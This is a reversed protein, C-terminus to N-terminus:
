RLILLSPDIRDDSVVRLTGTGSFLDDRVFRESVGSDSSGYTGRPLPQWDPTKPWDRWFAKKCQAAVGDPLEVRGSEGDAGDFRLFCKKVADARPVVLKAGCCVRVPLNRALACGDAATGLRLVGANVVLEDAINTQSGGLVLAGSWSSVFGGPATVPAWIQNPKELNSSKAFVYGPRDADGLVLAGNDAGGDPQGIATDDGQLVLGGSTIALTRGAGLLKDKGGDNLYLSNVTVDREIGIDRNWVYANSFQSPAGDLATDNFVPHVLLGNKDFSVFLTERWNSDREWWSDHASAPAVMWPIIPYVDRELCDGDEGAGVLFAGHNKVITTTNTSDAAGAQLRSPDYVVFTGKDEHELGDWEVCNIPRGSANGSNRVVVRSFGPGVVLKEFLRTDRVGVGWGENASAYSTYFGGRMTMTRRPTWPICNGNEDKHVEAEGYGHEWGTRFWGRARGTDGSPIGLQPWCWGAVTVSVNTGVGAKWFIPGARNFGEIQGHSTDLLTGRFSRSAWSFTIGGMGKKWFTGEGTLNPPGITGGMNLGYGPLGDVSWFKGEPIHVTCAEYTVFGRHAAVNTPNSCSDTEVSSACELLIAYGGFRLTNNQESWTNPTVKVFAPEGDTREFTVTKTENANKHRELRCEATVDRFQGFLIGGVSLDTMHRIYTNGETAYFPIVAIDNPNCPWQSDTADGIKDWAAAATWIRDGTSVTEDYVYVDGGEIPEPLVLVAVTDMLNDGNWVEIGAVAPELATVVFGDMSLFRENLVRYRWGSPLSPLVVTDDAHVRIATAASCHASWDSVIVNSGGLAFSLNVTTVYTRGLYLATVTAVAVHTTNPKGSYATEFTRTSTQGTFTAVTAGDVSITLAYSTGPEVALTSVSLRQSGDGAPTSGISSLRVPAPETVAEFTASVGEVGWTNVARVRYFYNSGPVLGATTLVQTFPLAAVAVGASSVADSFDGLLSCDLYVTADTSGAGFSALNATASVSGFGVGAPVLGVAAPEPALTRFSLLASLGTKGNDDVATAKAYYLTNTLLPALPVSFTGNSTANEAITGSFVPDSLDASASVVLSVTASTAGDGLSVLGATLTANTYGVPEAALSITPEAGGEPVLVRLVVTGDGGRGGTTSYPTNAYGAGGGGGGGLGDAGNAATSRRRGGSSSVGTGGGGVGAVGGEAREYSSAGGGGGYVVPLGTISNTVGPGGAGAVSSTGDAGPGGAGGGGGGCGDSETDAKGGDHGLGATGLGPQVSRGAAGGGSAGDLGYAEAPLDGVGGTGWNFNGGGGGGPATHLTGGTVTGFTTAGGCTSATTAGEHLLQDGWLKDLYWSRHIDPVGGAGVTFVYSQAGLEVGTAALVGGGGGGGGRTMGGAGGGGALLLSSGPSAKHPTFAVTGHRSFVYARYPPFADVVRDPARSFSGWDDVYPEESWRDLLVPGAATGEPFLDGPATEDYLRIEDFCLTADDGDNDLSFQLLSMGALDWSRTQNLKQRDFWLTQKNNASSVVLQHWAGVASVTEGVGNTLATFGNGAGIQNGDKLFLSGDAGNAPSFQFFCHRDAAAPAYFWLAITWNKQLGPNPVALTSGPPVSVVGSRGDLEAVASLASISASLNVPANPIPITGEKAPSGVVAEFPNSRDFAYLAALATRTAHTESLQVYTVLGWDNVLRFRLAYDTNPELNEVAFTMAQGPVANTEVSSITTAFGDASAELRITASAAGTGFDTVAGTASLRAPGGSLFEGTGSPAGPARTTFAIEASAGAVGFSNTASLRAYYTANTALPVLPVAVSAPASEVRPLPLVFLPDSFDANASVVLLPDVWSADNAMAADMGLSGVNASLTANTYLVAALPASLGIQPEPTAEYPTAPGATLFTPDSQSAYAAAIWDASKIGASLRYEDVLGQFGQGAGWQNRAMWMEGSQGQNGLSSATQTNVCVGNVYFKLGSSGPVFTMAWHFWTNASLGANIDPHDKIGPTTVQVKTGSTRVSMFGNKGFLAHNGSTNALNAWGGVTFGSFLDANPLNQGCSVYASTNPYSLGTGVAGAALAVAGAATGDNGSGSADVANTENMHWVGKYGAFPNAACVTKGSTASGWCMVFSAGQEMSPLKVWVLSEGNTNWTDIEFPLGAGDMGVFCLDSGAEADVMQSYLFGPVANTSVRVLVPFDALATKNTDYGAVTLQAGWAYFAGAPGPLARAPLALAALAAFLLSPLIRKM